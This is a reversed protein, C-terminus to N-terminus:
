KPAKLRHDAESRQRFRVEDPVTADGDHGGKVEDLFAFERLRTCIACISRSLYLLNSGYLRPSSAAPFRCVPGFRRLTTKLLEVVFGHGSGHEAIGDFFERLVQSLPIQFSGKLRLPASSKQYHFRDWPNRAQKLLGPCNLSGTWWCGPRSSGTIM